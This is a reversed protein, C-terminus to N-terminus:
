RRHRPWRDVHQRCLSGAAVARRSHLPLVLRRQGGVIFGVSPGLNCALTGVKARGQASAETALSLAGLAAVLALIRALKTTM